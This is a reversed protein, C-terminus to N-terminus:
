TPAQAGQLSTSLSGWPSYRSSPPPHPARLGKPPWLPQPSIEPPGWKRFFARSEGKKISCVLFLNRKELYFFRGSPGALNNVKKSVKQCPAWQGLGGVIEQTTEMEVFVIELLRVEGGPFTDRRERTGAGWPRGM